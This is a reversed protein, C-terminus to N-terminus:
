PYHETCIVKGAYGLVHHASAETVDGDLDFVINAEHAFNDAAGRDNTWLQGDNDSMLDIVIVIDVPFEPPEIQDKVAFNYRLLEYRKGTSRDEHTVRACEMLNDNDWEYGRGAVGHSFFAANYFKCVRSLATAQAENLTM